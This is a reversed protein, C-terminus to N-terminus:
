FLTFTHSFVIFVRGCSNHLLAVLSPTLCFSPFYDSTLVLVLDVPCFLNIPQNLIAAPSTILTPPTLNHLVHVDPILLFNTLNPTFKWWFPYNTLITPPPFMAMWELPCVIKLKMWMSPMVSSAPSSTFLTAPPALPMPTSLIPSTLTQILSSCAASTYSATKCSPRQSPYSGSTPHCVEISVVNLSIM